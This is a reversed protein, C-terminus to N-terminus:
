SRPERIRRKAEEWDSFSESGSALRAARAELVDRHWQPSPIAAEDRRLDEWIEEMARLKEDVTMQDLPLTMGM